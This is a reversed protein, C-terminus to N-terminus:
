SLFVGVSVSGSVSLGVAISSFCFCVLLYPALFPFGDLHPALVPLSLCSVVGVFLLVWPALVLVSWM